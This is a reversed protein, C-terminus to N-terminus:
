KARENLDRQEVENPVSEVDKPTYNPDGKREINEKSDKLNQPNTAHEAEHSGTAGVVDEFKGNRMLLYNQNAQKDEGDPLQKINERLKANVNKIGVAQADMSNKWMNMSNTNVYVDVREVVEEGKENTTWKPDTKGFDGDRPKNTHLGIAYTTNQMKTFMERGTSTKTMANGIRKADASANSSWQIRGGTLMKYTVPKGDIGEVFKGNRDKFIIPNNAFAAYPSIGPYAHALPDVSWAFVTPDFNYQNYLVDDPLFAVIKKTKTNYATRGIREIPKTRIEEDFLGWSIGAYRTSVKDNNQRAATHDTRALQIITDRTWGKILLNKMQFPMERYGLQMIHNIWQEYVKFEGESQLKTIDTSRKVLREELVEAKLLMANLNKQDFRLVSEACSLMFADYKVGFKYEYGKALYVLCLGVAQASTLERLAIENKVAETPSHTITELTGTGPFSKSSLEVNFYTGKDDAHRIYIHGPATCLVADSQLRDSFIKFLSALAFCNGQHYNLLNIVQTNTWQATGLPDAFSYTFPTHLYAGEPVVWLSSDTMYKFIAYNTLAKHYKLQKQEKSELIDGQLSQKQPDAYAAILSKINSVHFDLVDDFSARSVEGDWWANEIAFIADEYSLPAKGSLMNEIHQKATSFHLKALSDNNEAVLKYRFSFHQSFLM